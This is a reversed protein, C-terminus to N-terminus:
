ELVVAPKLGGSCNATRPLAGAVVEGKQRPVGATGGMARETVARTGVGVWSWQTTPMTQDKALCRAREVSREKRPRAAAVNRFAEADIKEERVATAIAEADGELLEAPALQEPGIWEGGSVWRLFEDRHEETGQVAEGAEDALARSRKDIPAGSEILKHLRLATEHHIVAEYNAGPKRPRQMPGAHIARVVEVRLARPLRAGARRLFHLVERRLETTWVGRRGTVLLTRALRIDSKPNETFAHLALRAFLPEESLVWRRLLNDARASDKEALALYGDRVMDILKLWNEDHLNQEHPAISPRYVSSDLFSDEVDKALLLMKKLHSTLTQAHRALVEHDQLIGEIQHHHDTDGVVLILHGCGEIPSVAEAAQNMYQDFRM